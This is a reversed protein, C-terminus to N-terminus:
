KSPVELKGAAPAIRDAQWSEVEFLTPKAASKVRLNSGPGAAFTLDALTDGKADLAVVSRVPAGLQATDPAFGNARFGAVAGLLDQVASTKASKGDVTWSSDGRALTYTTDHRAVQLSAVRSTDVKLILKNRWADVHRNLASVLDADLVRVENQGPLRVYTSTYGPGRKGVVPGKADDLEVTRASDNSVGLRAQNAPNTSAINGVQADALDSVLSAAMASDAPYGNVTWGAGNHQLHVTDPPAILTAKQVEDQKLAALDDGLKSKPPRHRSAINVGVYILLLVLVAGILAKLSRESM